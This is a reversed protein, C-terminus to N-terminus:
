IQKLKPLLSHFLNFTNLSDQLADHAPGEFPVGFRACNKKLGGQISVGRSLQSGQCYTKVDWHRWGFIWDEEKMGAALCDQKLKLDDGGGWQIAMHHAGWKKHAAALTNYAELLTTGKTVLTNDTIGTLTTIYPYLSTKIDIYLSLKEFIEGTHIDGIVAGIQIIQYTKEGDANM